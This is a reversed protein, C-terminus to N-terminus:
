VYFKKKKVKLASGNLKYGKLRDIAKAADKREKMVVYACGRPPVM